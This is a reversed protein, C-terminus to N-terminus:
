PKAYIRTPTRCSHSGIEHGEDAIEKIIHPYKEGVWGLCFFTAKLGSDSLIQLIKHVSRELRAPFNEWSAVSATSPHDLIHFWDEIDFTLIKMQFFKKGLQRFKKM